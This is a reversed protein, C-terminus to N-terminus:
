NVLVSSTEKKKRKRPKRYLCKTRALKRMWRKFDVINDLAAGSNGHM